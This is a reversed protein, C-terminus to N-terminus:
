TDVLIRGCTPCYTLAEEYRVAREISRPVEVGCASCVRNELRSVAIGGKAARLSEYTRLVIDGVSAALRKRRVELSAQEDKLSAQKELLRARTDQWRAQEEQLRRRLSKDDERLNELTVMIELLEDELHSRRRRMEEAKQQGAEIEKVNTILGGYLRGELDQIRETLGEVELELDRQRVELRHIESEVHKINQALEALIPPDRLAEALEDLERAVKELALDVEQLRLLTTLAM